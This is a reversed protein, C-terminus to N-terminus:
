AVIYYLEDLCKTIIEAIVHNYTPLWVIKNTVNKEEVISVVTSNNQKQCRILDVQLWQNIAYQSASLQPVNRIKESADVIRYTCYLVWSHM